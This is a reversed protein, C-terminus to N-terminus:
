QRYDLHISGEFAPFDFVRRGACTFYLYLFMLRRPQSWFHEHDGKRFMPHMIELPRQILTSSRLRFGEIIQNQLLHNLVFLSNVM